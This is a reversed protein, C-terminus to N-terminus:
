KELHTLTHNSLSLSYYVLICIMMTFLIVTVMSPGIFLGWYLLAVRVAEM